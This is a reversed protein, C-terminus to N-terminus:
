NLNLQNKHRPARTQAQCTEVPEPGAGSKGEGGIKKRRNKRQNQATKFPEISTRQRVTGGVGARIGRSNREDRIKQEQM